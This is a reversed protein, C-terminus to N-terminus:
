YHLNTVRLSTLESGTPEGLMEVIRRRAETVHPAYPEEGVQMYVLAVSANPWLYVHSRIGDMFGGHTWVPVAGPGEGYTADAGWWGIGREGSAPMLEAISEASLFASGSLPPPQTFCRCFLAFDNATTRLGAAPYQAVCYHGIESEGDRPVAVPGQALSEALLFSSRTMGLPRFVCDAALEHFPVGTVAELVAAALTFGMNSYHYRFPGPGVAWAVVGKSDFLAGCTELLDGGYDRGASRFRGPRLAREDDRLGSTHTLLARLSCAYPLRCALAPVAAAVDVDLSPLRRDEVLRLSTAAVILKSLSAVAFITDADASSLLVAGHRCAAVAKIGEGNARGSSGGHPCAAVAKIVEGNARGSSGRGRLQRMFGSNPNAQPRYKRVVALAADVDMSASLMLFAVIVSV